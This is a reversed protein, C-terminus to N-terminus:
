ALLHIKLKTQQELGKVAHQFAIDVAEELKIFEITFKVKQDESVKYRLRANLEINSEFEFVPIQLVIREPLVAQGKENKTQQVFEFRTDGSASDVVSVCNSQRYAKFQTISNLLEGNNPEVVDLLNDEMFEVFQIQTLERRNLNSWATFRRDYKFSRTASHKNISPTRSDKHYDLHATVSHRQRNATLYSREDKFRELYALFSEGNAFEQTAAIEHVITPIAALPHSTWEPPLFVHPVPKQLGPINVEEIQPRIAEVTEM